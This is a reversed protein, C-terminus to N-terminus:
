RRELTTLLSELSHLDHAPVLADVHPLAAKMGRAEPRYESYGMLPNLWVVRRARRRIATLAGELAETDGRDLGDSFILVSTDASVTNRLHEAAFRALCEGIRTGGSWDGASRALRRLTAAVDGGAIWPTIRKLSTDFAFAEVGPVVKKLATVFALFFRAYPDMSGSTDCLVVVHPREVARDRRALVVLEGGRALSHRFSRRVDVAPGRPRPVMKRSRRTALRRALREFIRELEALDDDTCREFSKRRLVARPSWGLRQAEPDPAPGEPRADARALKRRLDEMPNPRGPWPRPPEGARSRQASRGPSRRGTRWMEFFLRDFIPWHRYPVKLACRLALRVERHDGIDVLSLARASDIEDKLGVAVGSRRLEEGFRALHVILDDPPPSDPRAPPPRCLPARKKERPARDGTM